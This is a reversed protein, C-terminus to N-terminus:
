QGHAAFFAHCLLISTSTKILKLRQLIEEECSLLNGLLTVLVFYTQQIRHTKMNNENDYPLLSHSSGTTGVTGPAAQGSRHCM